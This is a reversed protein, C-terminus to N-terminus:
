IKLTFKKAVFPRNFQSVQVFYLALHGFHLLYIVKIKCAFTQQLQLAELAHYRLLDPSIKRM